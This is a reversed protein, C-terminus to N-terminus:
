RRRYVRRSNCRLNATRGGHKRETPIAPPPQPRTRGRLGSRRPLIASRPPVPNSHSLRAPHLLLAAQHLPRPDRPGSLNHRPRRLRREHPITGIRLLPPAEMAASRKNPWPSRPRPFHRTIRRSSGVHRNKGSPGSDRWRGLASSRGCGIQRFTTPPWM